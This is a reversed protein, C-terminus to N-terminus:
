SGKKDKRKIYTIKKEAFRMAQLALTEDKLEYVVRDSLYHVLLENVNTKLISGLQIVQERTPRKIGREIRSLLSPDIKLDAAVERLLLNRSTRVYRLHEGFFKMQDGIVQGNQDLICLYDQERLLCYNTEFKFLHVKIM